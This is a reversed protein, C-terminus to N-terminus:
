SSYDPTNRKSIIKIKISLAQMKECAKSNIGFVM